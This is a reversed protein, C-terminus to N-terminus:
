KGSGGGAEGGGSGGGRGVDGGGCWSGDRAITHIARQKVGGRGGVLAGLATAAGRLLLRCLAEAVAEEGQTFSRRGRTQHPSNFRSWLRTQHRRILPIGSSAARLWPTGVHPRFMGKRERCQSWCAQNTPRDCTRTHHASPHMRQSRDARLRRDTQHSSASSHYTLALVPFSNTPRACRALAREAGVALSRLWQIRTWKLTATERRASYSPDQFLSMQPPYM